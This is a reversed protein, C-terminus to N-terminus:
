GALFDFDTRYKEEDEYDRDKYAQYAGYHANAVVHIRSIDRISFERYVDEGHYSGTVSISIEGDGDVTVGEMITREYEITM